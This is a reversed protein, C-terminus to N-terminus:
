HGCTAPKEETYMKALRARYNNAKNSVYSTKKSQKCVCLKRQVHIIFQTRAHMTHKKIKRESICNVSFAVIAFCYSLLCSVLLGPISSYVWVCLMSYSYSLYLSFSIWPCQFRTDNRRGMNHQQVRSITTSLGVNINHPVFPSLGYALYMKSYWGVTCFCNRNRRALLLMNGTQHLTRFFPVALSIYFCCFTLTGEAAQSQETYLLSCLICCCYCCCCCQKASVDHCVALDLSRTCNRTRLWNRACFSFLNCDASAM